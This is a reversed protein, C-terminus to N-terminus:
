RDKMKEEYGNLFAEGYLTGECNNQKCGWDQSFGLQPLHSTM